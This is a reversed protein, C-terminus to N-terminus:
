SEFRFKADSPLSLPLLVPLLTYSFLIKVQFFFAFPLFFEAYKKEIFKKVNICIKHQMNEVRFQIPIQIQKSSFATLGVYVGKYLPHFGSESLSLSLTPPSYPIFLSSRRLRINQSQRYISVASFLTPLMCIIHHLLSRVFVYVHRWRAYSSIYIMSSSRHLRVCIELVTKLTRKNLINTTGYILPTRAAFCFTHQCLDCAGVRGTHTWNYCGSVYIAPYKSNINDLRHNNCLCWTWQKAVLLFHLM